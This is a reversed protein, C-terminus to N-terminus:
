VNTKTNRCYVCYCFSTHKHPVGSSVAVVVGNPKLVLVRPNNGEKSVGKNTVEFDINNEKSEIYKDILPTTIAM